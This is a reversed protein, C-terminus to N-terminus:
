IEGWGQQNKLWNNYREIEYSYLAPFILLRKLYSHLYFSYDTSNISSLYNYAMKAFRNVRAFYSRWKQVCHSDGRLNAVYHTRQCLWEGADPAGIRVLSYMEMMDRSMDVRSKLEMYWLWQMMKEYSRVRKEDADMSHIKKVIGLKKKKHESMSHEISNAEECEALWNEEVYIKYRFRTNAPKIGHKTWSYNQQRAPAEKKESQQVASDCFDQNLWAPLIVPYEEAV